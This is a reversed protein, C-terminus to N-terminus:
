RGALIRGGGPQDVAAAGRATHTTLVSAPIAQAWVPSAVLTGFLALAAIQSKM